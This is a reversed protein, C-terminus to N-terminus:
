KGKALDMASVVAAKVGCATDYLASAEQDGAWPMGSRGSFSVLLGHPYAPDPLVTQIFAAASRQWCESVAGKAANGGFGQWLALAKRILREVQAATSCFEAVLHELQRERLQDWLGQLQASAAILERNPREAKERLAQIRAQLFEMQRALADAAAESELPEMPFDDSALALEAKAAQARSRAALLDAQRDKVKQETEAASALISIKEAALTEIRGIAARLLEVEAAGPLGM